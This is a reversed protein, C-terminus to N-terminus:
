EEMADLGVDIWVSSHTLAGASIRDVGSQAIGAITELRVSGSAELLLKPQQADRKTVAERLQDNRMNDLLVIDVTGPELALLSDLQELRDVEIEIFTAGLGRGIRSASEARHRLADDTLGAIHNDKVLVADSLGLRHCHGGGCRVAYKELTRLGPTTKRTDLVHAQKGGTAAESVFLSTLTAIGSLRGITNLITREVGVIASRPGSLTAVRKGSEVRTGDPVHLDCAVNSGLANAFLECIMEICVLGSVVGPQRFVIAARMPADNEFWSKSTIDGAAGLDEDRALEFVRRVLGTNCLREFLADLALSNVEDHM